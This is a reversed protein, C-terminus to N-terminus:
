ASSKSLGALKVMSSQANSLLSFPTKEGKATLLPGPALTEITILFEMKELFRGLPIGVEPDACLM